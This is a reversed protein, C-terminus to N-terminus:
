NIMELFPPEGAPLYRYLFGPNTLARKVDITRLERRWHHSNTTLTKLTQYPTRSCVYTSIALTTRHQGTM